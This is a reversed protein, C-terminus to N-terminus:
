SIRAGVRAFVKGAMTPVFLYGYLGAMPNVGALL